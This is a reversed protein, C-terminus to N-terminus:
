HSVKFPAARNSPNHITLTTALRHQHNPELLLQREPNFKLMIYYYYWCAPASISTSVKYDYFYYGLHSIFVVTATIRVGLIVLFRICVFVAGNMNNINPSM